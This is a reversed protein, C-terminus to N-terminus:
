ANFNDPDGGFRQNRNLQDLRNIDEEALEFDFIKANEEIRQKTISKPITVVGHQLDWRLVIQAPTREYKKAIDLIVQEKLFHGQMLPSYAEVQIGQDKCYQRLEVQTLYPHFEFQNVMPAINAKTSLKELHHIQFNSVGIARIVKEEYLREMAKWTDMFRDDVVWHILYLDLYAVDLNKCSTEFAKLTSDYGQDTNWVKTTLFLEDRGIGSAAIGKQVGSENDYITATDISRYGARIASEVANEVDGGEKSQWVGLGLRPMKVGNQLEVADTYAM